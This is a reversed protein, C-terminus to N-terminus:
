LIFTCVLPNTWGWWDSTHSSPRQPQIWLPLLQYVSHDRGMNRLKVLDSHHASQVRATFCEKLCALTQTSETNLGRGKRISSASHCLTFVLTPEMTFGGWSPWLWGAAWGLQSCPPDRFDTQCQRQRRLPWRWGQVCFVFCFVSVCLPKVSAKKVSSPHNAQAPM